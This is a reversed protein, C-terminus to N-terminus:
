VFSGFLSNRLVLLFEQSFEAIEIDLGDVQLVEQLLNSVFLSSENGFIVIFKAFAAALFANDVQEFAADSM